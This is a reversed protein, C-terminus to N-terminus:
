SLKLACLTQSISLSAFTPVTALGVEGAKRNQVPSCYRGLSNSLSLYWCKKPARLMQERWNLITKRSPLLPPPFLHLETSKRSNNWAIREEPHKQSAGGKVASGSCRLYSHASLAATDSLTIWGVLWQLVIKWYIESSSTYSKWLPLTLTQIDGADLVTGSMSCANWFYNNFSCLHEPEM